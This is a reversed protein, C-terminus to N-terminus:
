VNTDQISFLARVWEVNYVLGSILCCFLSRPLLFRFYCGYGALANEIASGSHSLEARVISTANRGGYIGECSDVIKVLAAVTEKTMKFYAETKRQDLFLPSKLTSLPYFLFRAPVWGSTVWKRRLPRSSKEPGNLNPTPLPRVKELFKPPQGRFSVSPALPASIFLHFSLKLMAFRYRNIGDM